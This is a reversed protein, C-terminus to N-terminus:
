RAYLDLTCCLIGSVLTAIVGTLIYLILHRMKIKYLEINKDNLDDDGYLFPIGRLSNGGGPGFWSSSTLYKWKEFHNKRLYNSFRLQLVFLNFLCVGVSIFFVFPIIDWWYNFTQSPEM